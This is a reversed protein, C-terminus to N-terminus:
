TAMTHSASAETGKAQRLTGQRQSDATGALDRQHHWCLVDAAQLPLREEMESPIVEGMLGAMKPYLSALWKRLDDHSNVLNHTIYKKRSVVFDVKEADPFNTHVGVVVGVFYTLYCFYDPDLLPQPIDKKRHYRSHIIEALEGRNIISQVIRLSGAHSIIRAAEDIRDQAELYGIGFRKLWDENRVEIMHLYPLKPPGDLVYQQWARAVFPWDLEPALYGEVLFDGQPDGTGAEDSFSLFVAVRKGPRFGCFLSRVM